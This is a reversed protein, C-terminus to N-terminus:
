INLGKLGRRCVLRVNTGVNSSSKASGNSLVFFLVEYMNKWKRVEYNHNFNMFHICIYKNNHSVTWYGCGFYYHNYQKIIRLIGIVINLLKIKKNTQLFTGSCTGKSKQIKLRRKQIYSTIM